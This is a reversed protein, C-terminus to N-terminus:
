PRAPRRVAVVTCDDAPPRDDLFRALERQVCQLLDEVSQGSSAASISLLREQSFEHGTASEAELVGDTFCVLAVGEQLQAESAEYGRGPIVGVLAGKRIPLLSARGAHAV